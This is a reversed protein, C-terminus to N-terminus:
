AISKSRPNPINNNHVIPPRNFRAFPQQVTFPRQVTSPMSQFRVPRSLPQQSKAKTSKPKSRNEHRRTCSMRGDDTTHGEDPKRTFREGFPRRRSPSRQRLRVVVAPQSHMSQTLNPQARNPRQKRGNQKATTSSEFGRATGNGRSIERTRDSDKTPQGKYKDMKCPHHQRADFLVDTAIGYPIDGIKTSPSRNKDM